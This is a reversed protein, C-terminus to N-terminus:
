FIPLVLDRSKLRKVQITKVILTFGFLTTITCVVLGSTSLPIHYVTLIHRALAVGIVSALSGLAAALFLLMKLNHTILRATLVPGTIFALVILVGVARFAGMTTAAVQVMLLYNFFVTSIGLAKSLYPDFTTIKFEKIFLIISLVNLFVIVWVFKCDEKQLADVNGMVVEIGVHANRTLLTVLVIGLAFLSTFVIGMSADEQLRAIKTLCDTLLATLLGVALSALLMIKIDIPSYYAENELLSNQTLVFTIVIGLLITHSLSNALMTMKRLVLFTGVLAASIAVGILVVMQIEDSVMESLSIKGVIFSYLRVFLQLFFGFFNQNTYPNFYTSNISNM